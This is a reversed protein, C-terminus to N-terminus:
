SSVLEASASSSNCAAWRPDAIYNIIRIRRGVTAIGLARRLYREVQVMGDNAYIDCLMEISASRQSRRTLRALGRAPIQLLGYDAARIISDGSRSGSRLTIEVCDCAVAACEHPHSGRRAYESAAKTAARRRGRRSLLRGRTGDAGPEDGSLEVEPMLFLNLDVAHIGANDLLTSPHCFGKRRALALLWGLRGFNSSYTGVFTDARALLLVEILAEELAPDRVSLMHARELAWHLGKAPATMRRLSMWQVGPYRARLTQAVRTDDSALFVRSANALASVYEPLDFFQAEALKDTRRLHLGTVPPRWSMEAARADVERSLAESPRLLFSAAVVHWWLLGHHALEPPARVASSALPMCPIPPAASAILADSLNCGSWSKLLSPDADHGPVRPVWVAHHELATLLCARYFEHRSGLGSEKIPHKKAAAPDVPLPGVVFARGRCSAPHQHLRLQEVASAVTVPSRSPSAVDIGLPARGPVDVASEYPAAVAWSATAPSAFSARLVAVQEPTTTPCVALTARLRAMIWDHTEIHRTANRDQLTFHRMVWWLYATRHGIPARVSDCMDELHLDYSGNRFRAIHSPALREGLLSELTLPM